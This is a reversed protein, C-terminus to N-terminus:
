RVPAANKRPVVDHGCEDLASSPSVPHIVHVLLIQRKNTTRMFKNSSLLAIGTNRHEQEM